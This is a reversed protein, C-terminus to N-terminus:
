LPRGTSVVNPGYFTWGDDFLQRITGEPTPIAETNITIALIAWLLLVGLAGFLGVLAKM